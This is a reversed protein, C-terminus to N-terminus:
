IEYSSTIAILLSYDMINFNSFLAIDKEIIKVLKEKETKRMRIFFDDRKLYNVDKQVFLGDNNNKKM